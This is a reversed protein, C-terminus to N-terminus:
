RPLWARIASATSDADQHLVSYHDGPVDVGDHPLPWHPRRGGDPAGRPMEATPRGRLLLAPVPSPRPRWDELVRAYGGGALLLSDDLGDVVDASLAAGAAMLAQGRADDRRLVGARRGGRGRWDGPWPM